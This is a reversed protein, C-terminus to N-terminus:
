QDTVLFGIDTASLVPVTSKRVARIENVSGKAILKLNYFIGAEKKAKALRDINTFNTNKSYSIGVFRILKGKGNRAATIIFNKDNQIALVDGIYLMGKENLPKNTKVIRISDAKLKVEFASPNKDQEAYATLSFLTICILLTGRFM